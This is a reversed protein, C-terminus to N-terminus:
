DLAVYDQVFYMAGKALVFVRKEDALERFLFHIDERGREAHFSKQPQKERESQIDEGHSHRQVFVYVRVLVRRVAEARFAPLFVVCAARVRVVFDLRVFFAFDVFRAFFLFDEANAPIASYVPNEVFATRKTINKWAQHNYM